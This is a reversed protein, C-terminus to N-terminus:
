YLPTYKLERCSVRVKRIKGNRDDYRLELGSMVWGTPCELSTAKNFVFGIGSADFALDTFPHPRYSVAGFQYKASLGLVGINKIYNQGLDLRITVGRPLGDIDHAFGFDSRATATFGPTRHKEEYITQPVTKSDSKRGNRATYEFETCVGRLKAVFNDANAAPERFAIVKELLFQRGLKTSCDLKMWASLHDNKGSDWTRTVIRDGVTWWSGSTATAALPATLVLASVFLGTWSKGIM